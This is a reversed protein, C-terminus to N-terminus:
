VSFITGINSPYRQFGCSETIPVRFEALFVVFWLGRVYVRLALGGGGFFFIVPLFRHDTPSLLSHNQFFFFFFLTTGTTSRISSLFPLISITPSSYWTLFIVKLDVSHRGIWFGSLNSM